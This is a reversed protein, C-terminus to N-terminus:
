AQSFGYSEPLSAKDQTDKEKVTLRLFGRAQGIHSKPIIFSIGQTQIELYFRQM